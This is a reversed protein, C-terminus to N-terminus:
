ARAVVWVDVKDVGSQRLARACADLTAGTTMVDDILAVHRIRYGRRRATFAGRVNGGRRTAPLASQSPTARSRVLLDAVPIAGLWRSLDRALMESQNFGRWLRRRWHLPVPVLAQPRPAGLRVLRRATLGALVRGAALHHRFKFRHVLAEVAGSYEFGPWTAEFAPPRRSCRGCHEVAEPLPLGCQRCGAAVAPLDAECGACCDLGERGHQGCILCVPPLVIRNVFGFPSRGPMDDQELRGDRM